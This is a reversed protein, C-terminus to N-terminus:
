VLCFFWICSSMILLTSINQIKKKPQGFCRGFCALVYDLVDLVGKNPGWVVRDLVDHQGFCWSQNLFTTGFPYIPPRWQWNAHLGGGRIVAARSDLTEVQCFRLWCSIIGGFFSIGSLFPGFFGAIEGQQWRDYAAVLINQINQIKGNESTKNQRGFCALVNINHKPLEFM